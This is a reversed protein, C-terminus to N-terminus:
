RNDADTLFSWRGDVLGELWQDPEIVIKNGRSLNMDIYPYYGSSSHHRIKRLFPRGRFSFILNEGDQEIDYNWYSQIEIGNTGLNDILEDQM